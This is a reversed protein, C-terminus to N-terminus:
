ENNEGQGLMPNSCGWPKIHYLSRAKFSFGEQFCVCERRCLGGVLPCYTNRLYYAKDECLAADAEAKSDYTNKDSKM